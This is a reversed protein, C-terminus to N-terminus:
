AAQLEVTREAGLIHALIERNVIERHTLPLMHGADAVTVIRANLLTSGLLAVIRRAPAPSRAGRLLLAPAQIQRYTELPIAEAVAAAFNEAVTAAYRTLGSRKDEPLSAWTGSGNWYDVFRSMGAGNRDRTVAAAIAQVEALLWDRGAWGQQLLHFAVPEILTLSRVMEPQELAFRLAVAGGYSHGVLDIPGGARAALAGVIAAEDALDPTGPRGGSEGYGRLDPALVRRKGELMETLSRWQARTGASSHLLVAAPGNGRDSYAVKSGHVAILPM